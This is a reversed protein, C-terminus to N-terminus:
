YEDYLGPMKKVIVKRVLKNVGKRVPELKEDVILDFIGDM